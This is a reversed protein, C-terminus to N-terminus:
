HKYSLQAYARGVLSQMMVLAPGQLFIQKAISEIAVSTSASGRM